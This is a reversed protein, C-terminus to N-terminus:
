IYCQTISMIEDEKFCSIILADGFIYYQVDEITKIKDFLILITDQESYSQFDECRDLTTAMIEKLKTINFPVVSTLCFLIISIFIFNM